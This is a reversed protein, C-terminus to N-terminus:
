ERALDFDINAVDGSIDYLVRSKTVYGSKRVFVTLDCGASGTEYLGLSDTLVWVRSTDNLSVSVSELPLGTSSDRVAGSVPHFRFCAEDRTKDECGSLMLVLIAAVALSLRVATNALNMGGM